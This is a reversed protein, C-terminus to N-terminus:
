KLVHEWGSFPPIIDDQYIDRIYLVSSFVCECLHLFFSTIIHYHGESDTVLQVNPPPTNEREERFLVHM